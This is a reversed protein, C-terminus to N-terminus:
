VQATATAAAAAAVAVAVGWAAATPNKVWQAVPPVGRLCYNKLLLESLPINTFLYNFHM